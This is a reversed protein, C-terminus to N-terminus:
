SRMGVMAPQPAGQFEFRMELRPSEYARDQYFEEMVRRCYSELSPEKLEVPLRELEQQGADRVVVVLQSEIWSRLQEILTRKSEPVTGMIKYYCRVCQGPNNRDEAAKKLDLIEDAAHSCESALPHLVFDIPRELV